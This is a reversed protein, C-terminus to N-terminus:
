THLHKTHFNVEISMDLAGVVVKCVLVKVVTAEEISFFLPNLDIIKLNTCLSQRGYNPNVVIDVFRISTVVNLNQAKYCWQISASTNLQIYLPLVYLACGILM